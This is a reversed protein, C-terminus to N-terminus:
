QLGLEAFRQAVDGGFVQRISQVSTKGAVLERVRGDKAAAADIAANAAHRIDAYFMGAKTGIRLRFKKGQETEAEIIEIKM